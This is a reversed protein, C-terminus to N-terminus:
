YYVPNSQIVLVVVSTFIKYYLIIVYVKTFNEETSQGFNLRRSFESSTMSLDTFIRRRLLSFFMQRKSLIVIAYVALFM